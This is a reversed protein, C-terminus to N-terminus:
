GSFAQGCASKSDTADHLCVLAFRGNGNWYFGTTAMESVVHKKQTVLTFNQGGDTSRYFMLDCDNGWSQILGQFYAGPTRENMWVKCGHGSSSNLTAASGKVFRIRPAPAAAPPSTAAPSPAPPPGATAPPPTPAAHSRAHA